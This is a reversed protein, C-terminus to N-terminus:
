AALGAAELRLERGLRQRLWPDHTAVVLTSGLERAVEILLAGIANGTEADLSATPEDALLIMPSLLLARAVAVRQMEGRSLREVPQHPRTLGVRAALAMARPKLARACTGGFRAPLLINGLVDLGSVLHFDQFVLGIRARRWRDRAPETLRALDTDGWLVRGDSPRDLGALASLLSSKGSGSAGTLALHGGPELALRDLAVATMWDGSPLRHRIRLAEVLLTPPLLPPPSPM